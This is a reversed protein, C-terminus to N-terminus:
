HCDEYRGGTPRMREKKSEEETIAVAAAILSLHTLGQPFNGLMMESRPDFEEPFLCLDNGTSLARQFVRHAEDLRGQRALCEALWFTCALFMGERGELSDQGPPYRRLLGEEELDERIAGVTRVMRGDNHDVFGFLPLLLLSADMDRTDFARVFVGRKSDYGEKEVTCRIEAHAKKWIELPSRRSTSEALRIGRDVAVWCMAKSQVFHRPAGRVEWIGHDPERWLRVAHNVLEELFEWYDDDPSHGMRHWNWSLELLEGYVDLQRQGTAANGVRVPRSGRYGPLEAIEYERLRREGGLGFLIQLEDASGAASREIFHRFREAEATYGLEALSRVSFCSDRVWSYRYDWNRNGGPAEPLSTTAAAAIAGTPANSLGKLVMASRRVPEAYPGSLSKGKESWRHWWKVTEEFRRDIETADPPEVLGEELDEPRRFLLSLRAREGRGIELDGSVEHRRDLKLPFDASILFAADGGMAACQGNIFRIWPKIAGYDFRPVIRAAVPVRGRIGEIIRIIQRYPRHKGGARMPFFDLLRADGGETRFITEIILTKELYHRTTEYEVSPALVCYGGEEWGLLRGFCSESDLRPMCCWDISGWRSVLAASHCDAIFGYDSISPILSLWKNEPNEAQM